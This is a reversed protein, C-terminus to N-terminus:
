SVWTENRLILKQTQLSKRWIKWQKVYHLMTLVGFASMNLLIRFNKSGQNIWYIMEFTMFENWFWEEDKTKTQMMYVLNYGDISWRDLLYASLM